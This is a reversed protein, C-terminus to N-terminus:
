DDSAPEDGESDDGRSDGGGSDDNASAPPLKSNQCGSATRYNADAEAPICCHGHPDSRPTAGRDWETDYFGGLNRCTNAYEAHTDAWSAAPPLSHVHGIYHSMGDPHQFDDGTVEIVVRDAGSVRIRSRVWDDIAECFRDVGVAYRGARLPTGTLVVVTHWHGNPLEVLRRALHLGNWSTATVGTYYNTARWGSDSFPDPYEWWGSRITPESYHPCSVGALLPNGEISDSIFEGTPLFIDAPLGSSPSRSNSENRRAAAARVAAGGRAGCALLRLRRLPDLTSDDDRDRETLAGCRLM